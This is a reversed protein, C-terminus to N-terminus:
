VHTSQRNFRNKKFIKLWEKGIRPDDPFKFANEIISSNIDAFFLM